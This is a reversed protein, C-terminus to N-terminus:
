AVRSAQKLTFPTDLSLFASVDWGLLKALDYCGDDCTAEKFIDRYNKESDFDFSASGGMLM